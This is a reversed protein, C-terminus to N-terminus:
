SRIPSGCIEGVLGFLLTSDDEKLALAIDALVSDFTLIDRLAKVRSYPQLRLLLGNLWESRQLLVSGERKLHWLFLSGDLAMREATNVSYVSCFVNPDDMALSIQRKTEVLSEVSEADAFVAVDVDSGRTADGRSQSGFLLVAE